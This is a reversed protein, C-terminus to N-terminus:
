HSKFYDFPELCEDCRYLAKCLTSGFQSIVSTRHSGCRPCAIQPPDAPNLVPLAATADQAVPEAPPAIGFGRLKQRGEQSIWDTTWPPSLRIQLQVRVAHAELADCIRHRITSIAPCASYTPTLTVIFLDRDAGSWAVDRVIGLDVISVAPIEPDAVERLWSWIEEVTSRAATAATRVASVM